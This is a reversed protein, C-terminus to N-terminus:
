ARKMAALIRDRQRFHHRMHMEAFQAWQAATFYGLGPHGSKGTRNLSEHILQLLDSKLMEMKERLQDKSFSSDPQDTSGPDGPIQVNPFANEEFMAAGSESMSEESHILDEDALKGQSLYFASEELIHVIVQSISWQAASPKWTMEKESLNDITDIWNIVTEKIAEDISAKM